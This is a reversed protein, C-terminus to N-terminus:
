ENKNRVLVVASHAMLGGSLVIGYQLDIVDYKQHVEKLEELFFKEVFPGIVIIDDIKMDRFKM